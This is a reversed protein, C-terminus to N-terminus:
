PRIREFSINPGLSGTRDDRDTLEPAELQDDGDFPVEAYLVERLFSEPVHHIRAEGVDLGEEFVAGQLIRQLMRELVEVPPTEVIALAHLHHCTIGDLNASLSESDFTVVSGRVFASVWEDARVGVGHQLRAKGKSPVSFCPDLATAFQQHTPHAFVAFVHFAIADDDPSFQSVRLQAPSEEELPVKDSFSVIEPGHISRSGHSFLDLASHRLGLADLAVLLVAAFDVCGWSTDLLTGNLVSRLQHHNVYVVHDNRIRFGVSAVARPSYQVGMAHLSAEVVAAVQIAFARESAPDTGFPADKVKAIGHQHAQGYVWAVVRARLDPPLVSARRRVIFAQAGDLWELASFQHPLDPEVAELQGGPAPRLGSPWTDGAVVVTRTSLDEGRFGSSV